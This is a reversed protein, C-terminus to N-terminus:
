RSQGPSPESAGDRLSSSRDDGRGLLRRLQFRRLWRREADSTIRQESHVVAGFYGRLLWWARLLYPRRFAHFFVRLAFYMQSYGLLYSIRGLRQVGERLEGRTGMPRRHIVKLDDIAETHYGQMRARIVDLTDWGPQSVLGGIDVFCRYRYLRASGLPHYPQFPERRLGHELRVYSQGSLIGANESQEFRQILTEFYDSEIEVDADLKGLYAFDCEDLCGLGSKFAEVVGGGVADSGRDARQVLSIYEFRGTWERVIDATSDTSGDDVILWRTPLLTQATVASLTYDINAAENRAPTILCYRRDRDSKM